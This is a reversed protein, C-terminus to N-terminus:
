HCLIKLAYLSMTELNKVVKEMISVWRPGNYLPQLIKGYFISKSCFTGRRWHCKWNKIYLLLVITGYHVLIKMDKHSINTKGRRFNIQWTWAHALTCSHLLSFCMLSYITPVYKRKKKWLSGLSGSHVSRFTKKINETVNDIIEYRNLEYVGKFVLSYPLVVRTYNM